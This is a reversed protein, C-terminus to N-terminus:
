DNGRVGFFAAVLGAFISSVLLLPHRFLRKTGKSRRAAITADAAEAATLEGAAFLAQIRGQTMSQASPRTM